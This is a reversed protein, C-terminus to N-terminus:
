GIVTKQKLTAYPSFFYASDRHEVSLPASQKTQRQPLPKVLGGYTLFLLMEVPSRAETRGLGAMRFGEVWFCRSGTPQCERVYEAENLDVTLEKMDLFTKDGHQNVLFAAWYALSGAKGPPVIVLYRAEEGEVPDAQLTATITLEERLVGSSLYVMRKVTNNKWRGTEGEASGSTPAVVLCWVLARLVGDLSVM